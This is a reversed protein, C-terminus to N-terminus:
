TCRGTRKESENTDADVVATNLSDASRVVAQTSRPGLSGSPHVSM